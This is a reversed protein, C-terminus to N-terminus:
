RLKVEFSGRYILQHPRAFHISRFASEGNRDAHERVTAAGMPLRRVAELLADGIDFVQYGPEQVLYVHQPGGLLTVGPGPGRARQMRWVPEELQLEPRTFRLPAHFGWDLSVVSADDPLEGAFRELANSWRGRGGSEHITELTRLDVRLSGALLAAVCAGVLLRRAWAARDRAGWLRTAAIAVVLQPFPYVNMTHHIRAARPTALLGLATFLMAVLVFAQARDFAGRRADRWLRVALWVASPVLIVLFPGAVAGEVESLREFSGGALMLRHFHSGDLMSLWTHLKEALDSARVEQSRLMAQAAAWVGTLTVLMPAAGAAFGGAAALARAPQARLEHWFSRPAVLLLALGAGAVFPAFDIKNYIGLGLLLGGAALRVLSARAWGTTALYLGGGRLVLALAVSGWDHRSVFLFSPDFALFAGALLAVRLGFLRRAWLMVLGLGVCSWALAALRLTERTAGFAAFTPILLQSKLAGMYPQTMLPFWGGFLWTNRAGPMRLPEGGERLFESAPTAQIVEDYYLGPEDLNRGLLAFVCLCLVGFGAALARSERSM